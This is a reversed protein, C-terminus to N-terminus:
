SGLHREIHETFRKKSQFGILSGVVERNRILVTFPIGRVKYRDALPRHVDIDIRYFEVRDQYKEFLEEFIPAIKRCPACWDAYFEAVLLTSESTSLIKEWQDLSEVSPISSASARPLSRASDADTCAWLTLFFGAAAIHFYAILSKPNM